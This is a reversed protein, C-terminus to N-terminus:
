NKLTRIELIKHSRQADNGRIKIQVLEDNVTEKPLNIIATRINGQGQEPQLLVLRKDNILIESLRQQDEELFKIYLKAQKRKAKKLQYAFWGQNEAAERWRVDEIAGAVSHEERIFHDSEPQQEGCVVKDSTRAALALSEREEQAQKQQRDKLEDATAQPWYMVYRSDHLQYFPELEMRTSKNGTQLGALHFHLPKNSIPTVLSPIDEPASTLIPLEGLPLQRGQAVHGMRSDDALLGPVDADTTRAALVIPGYLISYYQSRDPLQETHVSMPLSIRVQDEKKWQRRITIYTSDSVATAYPQGNVFVQPEGSLWAPKRIRLAFTVPQEPHITFSTSPEHPFTNVQEILVAKEKWQLRSPIFLNVFLEEDTHAYIMEGYKGHNEMGSGVCCWMSTHPQSYVRYHGPRIQTFYVFGGHEPHQTSLIHNYLAKEYYDLYKAQPDTQFLMKTLRLMNYTNCTEPGEVSHIMKSFDNVPNFHESVSNGGFAISRQEVVNDWFYRVAVNWNQDDALDAIRKFGLVKPIQTNAHMGTLKDEQRLLPDLVTQHSFKRALELYKQIGTIAAVDAFTENLGGHESRLMDQIQEDSLQAVLRIAWDTLQILMDKATENGTLLYADRLGAYTKHINYLPVWKGNLSFGGAHINGQKIETWIAKGGPVGGIYGDGNAKQCAQLGAIMYDLREKIRTDGTSAYMLSLASLYHGGIHGDLGTNEWNTYSPKVLALGAERRFPALLRDADMELLYTLDIEEAQKFPSPLLRVNRLDFYAMKKEMQAQLPLYGLASISLVCLLTRLSMSSFLLM